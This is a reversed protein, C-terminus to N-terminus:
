VRLLLEGSKGVDGSHALAAATFRSPGAAARDRQFGNAGAESSCSIRNAVACCGAAPKGEWSRTVGTVGTVDCGSTSGAASATTSWRVLFWSAWWRLATSGPRAAPKHLEPTIEERGAPPADIYERMREALAADEIRLVIELNLYLSRMDFNASGLYVTDDLVILKTHLKCPQFEWIRAGAKLLRNYLARSAGITAGNDSKAPSCWGRRAADRRHAAIRRSCGDALALLLGDDHRAPRRRRPRQASASAGLEVPGRTPGGILLQVPATAPTGTACRAASRASSRTRTARGTRSSTSGRARDARGGPRRRHLALDNWGDAAPPPSIATRSTSGASCRRRRRRRHRDEPPQPDPLAASWSPRHLLLVHRGGRDAAAFFAARARRRRLRRRDARGAVGRRAAATLADRM